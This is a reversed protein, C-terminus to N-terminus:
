EIRESVKRGLLVSGTVMSPEPTLVRVRPAPPMMAKPAGDALLWIVALTTRPAAWVQVLLTAVPVSVRPPTTEPALVRVVAPGPKIAKVVALVRLPPRTRAVAPLVTVKLPALALARLRADRAM